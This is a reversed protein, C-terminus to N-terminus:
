VVFFKVHLLLEKDLCGRYCWILTISLLLELACLRCDAYGSGPVTITLWVTIVFTIFRRGTSLYGTLVTEELTVIRLTHELGVNTISIIVTSVVRIFVWSM